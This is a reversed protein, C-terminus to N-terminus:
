MEEVTGDPYVMAKNGQADVMLKGGHRTTRAAPMASPSGGLKARVIADINAKKAAITEPHDTRKPLMDMLLAQDKDTFVGEGASRFLQKLVPAIAAVTGEAIQAKATVAPIRGAIPGTETNGLSAELESMAANYTDLALSNSRQQGQLETAAAAGTEAAKVDRAIQPATAAEVSARAQAEAGAIPAAYQYQAGQQAYARAAAEEGAYQVGSGTAASIAEQWGPQGPQIAEGNPTTLRISGDSTAQLVAGNKFVDTRKAGEPGGAAKQGMQHAIYYPELEQLATARQAPDAMMQRIGTTHYTDGGLQKIFGERSELFRDASDWAGQSGLQYATAFDQILAERRKEDKLFATEQEQAKAYQYQPGNGSFWAGAGQLGEAWNYGAM